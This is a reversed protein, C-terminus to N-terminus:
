NRGLEKSLPRESIPPSLFEVKRALAEPPARVNPILGTFENPLPAGELPPLM